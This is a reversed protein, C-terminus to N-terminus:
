EAGRGHNGGGSTRVTITLHLGRGADALSAEVASERRRETMQGTPESAGRGVRRQRTLRVVGDVMATLLTAGVGIWVPDM